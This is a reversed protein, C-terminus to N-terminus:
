AFPSRAQNSGPASVACASTIKAARGQSVVEWAAPLGSTLGAPKMEYPFNSAVVPNSGTFLPKATRAM